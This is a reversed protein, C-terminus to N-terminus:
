VGDALLHRAFAIIVHFKEGFHDAAILARFVAGHAVNAADAFVGGCGRRGDFGPRASLLFSSDFPPIQLIFYLAPNKSWGESKGKGTIPSGKSAMPKAILSSCD